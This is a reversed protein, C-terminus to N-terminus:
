VSGGDSLKGVSLIVAENRNRDVKELPPSGVKLLRARFTPNLIRYVAALLSGKQM